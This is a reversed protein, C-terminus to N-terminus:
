GVERREHEVEDRPVLHAANMEVKEDRLLKRNQRRVRVGVGVEGEDDRAHKLQSVRSVVQPRPGFGQAM